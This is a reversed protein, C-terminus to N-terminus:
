RGVMPLSGKWWCQLNNLTGDLRTKCAALAQANVAERPWRNVQRVVRQTFLEERFDLYHGM